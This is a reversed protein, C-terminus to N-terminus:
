MCATYLVTPGQLHNCCIISVVFNLLNCIVVPLDQDQNLIIYDSKEATILTMDAHLCLLCDYCMMAHRCYASVRTWCSKSRVSDTLVPMMITTSCVDAPRQQTSYIWGIHKGSVQLFYPKGRMCTIGTYVAEIKEGNRVIFVLKERNM